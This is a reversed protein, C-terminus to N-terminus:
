KVEKLRKGRQENKVGELFNKSKLEVIEYIYEDAYEGSPTRVVEHLLVVNGGYRKCFRDYHRKVPNGGTMRWEIRHHSNVLEKMKRIVDRGIVPNGRDFSFLGINDITDSGPELRYSFYGVLKDKDIIAYQYLYDERKIDPIYTAGDYGTYYFFDQTYLKKNFENEIKEKFLIAPKLM